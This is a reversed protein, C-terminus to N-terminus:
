MMGEAVMDSGRTEETTQANKVDATVKMILNKTPSVVNCTHGHALRWPQIQRTLYRMRSRNTKWLHSPAPCRLVREFTLAIRLFEILPDDNNGLDPRLPSLQSV